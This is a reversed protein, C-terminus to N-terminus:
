NPVIDVPTQHSQATSHSPCHYLLMAVTREDPPLRTSRQENPVAIAVATETMILPRVLPGNHIAPDVPLSGSVTPSSGAMNAVAKSVNATLAKPSM